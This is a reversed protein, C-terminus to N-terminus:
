PTYAVCGKPMNDTDWIIATSYRARTLAVYFKCLTLGELLKKNALHKKISQTPYIITRNFTLGKSAGFNYTELTDDVSATISYRLQVPTFTELYQEVDKSAVIFVGDHGTKEKNKSTVKPFQPFLTSSFDCLAKNCRHSANLTEKDINCLSKMKDTFYSEIDGNTYKKNKKSFHTQVTVQRPDGVLTMKRKKAILKIVELDYGALDQTEDIYIHSFINRIRDVVAGDTKKDCNFVFKAIKDSYIQRSPSFYFKDGDDEGFYFSRGRSKFKMGSQNNVLKLGNIDNETLESLYPKVGHQILFSWWTQITINTPIAQNIELFKQKIEKENELTFTTILIQEEVNQKLADKIIHTTKGAGAAAILFESKPAKKKVKKM